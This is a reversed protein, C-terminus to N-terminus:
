FFAKRAQAPEHSHRRARALNYYASAVHPSLRTERILRNYWFSAENWHNQDSELNGLELFAAPAHLHRMDVRLAALLARRTMERRCETLRRRDAQARTVFRVSAGDIQCALGFHDAVQELVDVLEWHHLHLDL